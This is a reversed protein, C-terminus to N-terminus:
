WAPEGPDLAEHGASRAPRLLRRHPPGALRHRQLDAQRDRPGLRHDDRAPQHHRHGRRGASAAQARSLAEVAVGIQSTWIEKPITSSGAPSRFSRSSSRRRSAGRNRRAPRLRHRALQHHGSRPCSHIGCARRRNSKQGPEEPLSSDRLRLARQRDSRWWRRSLQCGGVHTGDTIGNNRFGAVVTFLRPGFDRAPNIAYGHM